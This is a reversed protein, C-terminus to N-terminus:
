GHALQVPLLTTFRTLMDPPELKVHTEGSPLSISYSFHLIQDLCTISLLRFTGKHLRATKVLALPLVPVGLWMEQRM